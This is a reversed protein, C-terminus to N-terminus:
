RTLHVPRRPSLIVNGGQGLIQWADDKASSYYIAQIEFFDRPVFESIQRFKPQQTSQATLGLPTTGLPTLGEITEFLIGEDSGDIEKELVQEAGQFEYRLQLTIKTNGRIYGETLWRSLKKYATRDGYSRYTYYAKFSIPNGDDNTGDFLKYTANFGSSHGYIDDSIVAFRRISMIQPPQWFRTFTGDINRRVENIWVNDDEPAAIYTRNRHNKLHGNTFNAADFDPKIPDSLDETILNNNEDIGVVKRLIPEFSVFMDGDILDQSQAAMGPSTKLKKVKLTESLTGNIDLEHFQTKYWDSRGASILTEDTLFMVGRGVSDLVLLAGEGPVRPSSFSFDKFDTNKSVYVENRKNSIIYLQNDKVRIASNVWTDVPEDDNERIQQFVLSNVAETSPDPTVGTLTTTGEGGTYTYATGNIIVRRTGSTLFRENAWTTSGNKTLTNSTASALSTAAGSWDWIKDNGCVMLLLDIDESTDWWPAFSFVADPFTIGTGIDTWADFDVGEVTGFYATLTTGYARLNIVANSSNQWDVAGEVPNSGSGAAGYISYGGRTEVREQDNIIMNQSPSVLIQTPANTPDPKSIYGLCRKLLQYDEPM